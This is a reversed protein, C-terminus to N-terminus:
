VTNFGARRKRWWFFGAIAAVLVIALLVLVVIVATHSSPQELVFSCQADSGWVLVTDLGRTVTNVAFPWGNSEGGKLILYTEASAAVSAVGTLEKAGGQCKDSLQTRFALHTKNVSLIQFEGVPCCCATANCPALTLAANSFKGSSSVDYTGAWPARESSCIAGASNEIAAAVTTHNNCANVSCAASAAQDCSSVQFDFSLRPFNDTQQWCYCFPQKDLPNPTPNPTATTATTTNADDARACSLLFLGLLSFLM